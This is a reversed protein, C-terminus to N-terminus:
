ENWSWGMGYAHHRRPRDIELVYDVHTGANQTETRVGDIPDPSRRERRRRDLDWIQGLVNGAGPDETATFRVTVKLHGVRWRGVELRYFTSMAKESDELVQRSSVTARQGRGLPSGLYIWNWTYQDEESEPGSLVVHRPNASEMLGIIGRGTWIYPEEIIRLNNRKAVLRVTRNKIYRHHHGVPEILLLGELSEVDYPSPEHVRSIYYWTLVSAALVLIAALCWARTNASRAFLLALAAGIAGGVGAGAKVTVYGTRLFVLLRSNLWGQKENVSAVM